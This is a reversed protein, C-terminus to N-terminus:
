SVAELDEESSAQAAREAVMWGNPQQHNSASGEVGLAAKAKSSVKMAMADPTILM